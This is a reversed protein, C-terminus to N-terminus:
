KRTIPPSYAIVHNNRIKSKKNKLPNKEIQKARNQAVAGKKDREMMYQAIQVGESIPLFNEPNLLYTKEGDQIRIEVHLHAGTVRGSSGYQGIPKKDFPTVVDGIKLHKPRERLHLYKVAVIRGDSINAKYEVFNGAQSNYGISTVVGGGPFVSYLNSSTYAVVDVGPHFDKCAIKVGNQEVEEQGEDCLHRNERKIMPTIRFGYHSTVKIGDERFPSTMAILAGKDETYKVPLDFDNLHVTTKPSMRQMKKTLFDTLQDLHRDKKLENKDFSKVEEPLFEKHFNLDAFEPNDILSNYFDNKRKEMEEREYQAVLENDITQRNLNALDDIVLAAYEGAFDPTTNMAATGIPKTTACFALLTAFLAASLRTMRTSGSFPTGPRQPTFNKPIKIAYEIHRESTSQEPVRAIAAEEIKEEREASREQNQECIFDTEAEMITDFNNEIKRCIENVAEYEEIPVTSMATKKLSTYIPYLFRAQEAAGIGPEVQSLTRFTEDISKLERAAKAYRNYNELVAEFIEEKTREVERCAKELEKTDAAPAHSVADDKIRAYASMLLDAEEAVWSQAKHESIQRLRDRISYLKNAKRSYKQYEEGLMNSIQDLVRMKKDRLNRNKSLAKNKRIYQAAKVLYNAEHDNLRKGEIKELFHEVSTLKRKWRKRNLMSNGISLVDDRMLNEDTVRSYANTILKFKNRTRSEAEERLADALEEHSNNPKRFHENAYHDIQNFSERISDRLEQNEKKNLTKNNFVRRQVENLYSIEIRNLSTADLGKLAQDIEKAKTTWRKRSSIIDNLRAIEKKIESDDTAVYSLLAENRVSARKSYQDAFLNAAEASSLANPREQAMELASFGSSRRSSIIGIIYELEHSTRFRNM